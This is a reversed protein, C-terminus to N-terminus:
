VRLGEGLEIELELYDADADSVWCTNAWEEGPLPLVPLGDIRVDVTWEGSWLVDKGVALEVRCSAGPYLVTLRPASRSWDPRLVAVAAWESHVAPKHSM